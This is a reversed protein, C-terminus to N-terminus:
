DSADLRPLAFGFEAGGGERRSVWVRGRMSEVLRRCVFLGIGLGFRRPGPPVDTLAFSTTLEEATLDPGRDLVSVAVEGPSSTFRVIIPTGAAGFRTASGILNRLVQEIYVGDGRVAPPSPNGAVIIPIDPHRSRVVRVASEVARQLLVPEDSLELVGQEARTLVLLDEVVDYLRAAEASIDAAIERSKGAESAGAEGARRRALVRSGAYITTIPTRLEHSLIALFARREAREINASTVDRLIVIRGGPDFTPDPGAATATADEGAERGIRVSRMEFWRNPVRRPRVTVPHDPLAGAPLPEFRALLDAVDTVPQNAFLRDAAPNGMRVRDEPDCILVAEPMAEIVARLEAVPGVASTSRAAASRPAIGQGRAAGTARANSPM